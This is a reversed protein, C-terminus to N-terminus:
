EKGKEDCRNMEGKMRRGVGERGEVKNGVGKM